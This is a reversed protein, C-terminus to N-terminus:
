LQTSGGGSFEDGDESLTARVRIKSTGLLDGAGSYLFNRFTIAIQRPRM